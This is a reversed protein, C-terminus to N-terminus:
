PSVTEVLLVAVYTRQLDCAFGSLSCAHQASTTVREMQSKIFYTNETTSRAVYPVVRLAAALISTSSDIRTSLVKGDAPAMGDSQVRFISSVCNQTHIKDARGFNLSM